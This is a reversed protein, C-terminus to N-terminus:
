QLWIVNWRVIIPRGPDIRYDITGTEVNYVHLETTVRGRSLYSIYKGDPSWLPVSEIDQSDTVQMPEGEVAPVIFLDVQRQRRVAAAFFATDPSLTVPSVNPNTAFDFMPEDSEPDYFRPFDEEDLTIGRLDTGDMTPVWSGPLIESDYLTPLSLQDAPLIEDLRRLEESAFAYFYASAGNELFPIFEVGSSDALWVTYYPCGALEIFPVDLLRSEWTHLNVITYCPDNVRNYVLWRYDPSIDINFRDHVYHGLPLTLNRELHTVYLQSDLAGQRGALFLNVHAPLRDALLFAGVAVVFCIAFLAVSCKILLRLM